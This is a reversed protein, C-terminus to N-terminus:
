TAKKKATTKKTAPKKIAKVVKKNAVAKATTKNKAVAKAVVKKTTAKKVVKEAHLKSEDMPPDAVPREEVENIVSWNFLGKFWNLM